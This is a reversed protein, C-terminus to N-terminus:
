GNATDAMEHTTYDYTVVSGVDHALAAARFEAIRGADHGFAFVRLGVM